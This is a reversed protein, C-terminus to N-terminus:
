PVPGAPARAFARVGAVGTVWAAATGRVHLSVCRGPEPAERASSGRSAGRLWPRGAPDPGWLWARRAPDRGFARRPRPVGRSVVIRPVGAAPRAGGISISRSSAARAPRGRVAGARHGRARGLDRRAGPQVVGNELWASPTGAHGVFRAVEGNVPRMYLVTCARRRARDDRAPACRCPRRDRVGRGPRPHRSAGHRRILPARRRGGAAHEHPARRRTLLLVRRAPGSPRIPPSRGPSRPGSCRRGGSLPPASAEERYGGLGVLGSSSRSARRRRQGAADSAERRPASSGVNLGVTLHPLSRGKRRSMAFAGGSPRRSSRRGMSWVSALGRHTGSDTREFGAILRLLDRRAAEPHVSSRLSASGPRSRRALRRRAGGREGFAKASTGQGLGLGLGVASMRERRRGLSRRSGAASCSARCRRSPLLALAYPAAAGYAFNNTYARIRHRAHERRDSPPDADGDTGDLLHHLRALFGAILAPLLVPLTVRTLVASLRGHGLLRAVEELGPPAQASVRACPSSRSCSSCSRTPSPSARHKSQYLGRSTGSRSTSSRCPWWSARYPRCVLYTSREMTM